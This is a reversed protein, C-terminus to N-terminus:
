ESDLRSAILGVAASLAPIAAAYMTWTANVWWCALALASYALGSCWACNWWEALRPHRGSEIWAHVPNLLPVTDQSLLRFVRYVALALVISEWPGPIM